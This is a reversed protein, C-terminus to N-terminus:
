LLSSLRWFCLPRITLPYDSLVGSLFRSCALVVPLGLALGIVVVVLSDRLVMWLVNSGPAGLAMRIGLEATRRMVGYSMVGYVGVCALALALLGFASTLYVVLRAPTLSDDIQEAVTAIRRVPLNPDVEAIIRRIPEKM